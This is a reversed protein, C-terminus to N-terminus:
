ADGLRVPDAPGQMNVNVSPAPPDAETDLLQPRFHRDNRPKRSEEWRAADAVCASSVTEFDWSTTAARVPMIEIGADGFLATM